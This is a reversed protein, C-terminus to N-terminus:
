RFRFGPTLGRLALSGVSTRSRPPQPGHGFASLWREEFGNRPRRTRSGKPMSLAPRGHYPQAPVRSRNPTSRAAVRRRLRRPPRPLTVTASERAPRDPRKFRRMGASNLLSNAGNRPCRSRDASHHAHSDRRPGNVSLESRFPAYTQALLPAANESRTARLVRQVAACRPPAAARPPVGIATSRLPVAYPAGRTRPLPLRPTSVAAAKFHSNRSSCRPASRASSPRTGCLLSGRMSHRSHSLAGLPARRRM